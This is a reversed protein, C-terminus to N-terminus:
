ASREQAYATYEIVKIHASSLEDYDDATQEGNLISLGTTGIIGAFDDLLKRVESLIIAAENYDKSVVGIEVVGNYVGSSSDCGM